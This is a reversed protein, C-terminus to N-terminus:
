IMPATDESKIEVNRNKVGCSSEEVQLYSVESAVVSNSRVSCISGSRSQRWKLHSMTPFYGQGQLFLLIAETVKDPKEELVLGSSDSIKMWNSRTPDLKSNMDVSENIHASGIGVISLVPCQITPGERRIGMDTRKVYSEVFLALNKPNPIKAFYQKYSQVLDPSCEDLNRGFNHWMLYDVTLNTMGRNRLYYVNAKQYGWEVWGAATATCNVLILADVVKPNRLAYRCLVNAGAGVGFGIFSKLSFHAAVTGVIDAMEEVTPYIINDTFPEADEEQGPANIHYVCFKDAIITMESFQFFSQFCSNANLGLDHFTLIAPRKRDGVVYVSVSGFATKVKEESFDRSTQKLILQASPSDLPGMEVDDM